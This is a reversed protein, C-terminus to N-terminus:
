IRHQYINMFFEMAEQLSSRGNPFYESIALENNHPYSIINNIINIVTDLENKSLTNKTTINDKIIRVDEIDSGILTHIEWDPFFLEDIVANLAVITIDEVNKPIIPMRQTM